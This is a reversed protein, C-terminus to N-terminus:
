VALPREFLPEDEGLTADEISAGALGVEGARRITRAVAEPARGFGNELDASIPVNTAEILERVHAFAEDATISGDGDRKGRSFALGASTTALAKFGMNQLLRATGVDWPNPVVLVDREGHYRRFAEARRTLDTEDM